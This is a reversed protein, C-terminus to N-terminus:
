IIFQSHYKLEHNDQQELEPKNTPRLVFAHITAENKDTDEYQLYFYKVYNNKLIFVHKV